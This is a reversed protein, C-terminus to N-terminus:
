LLPHWPVGNRHNRHVKWRHSRHVAYLLDSCQKGHASMAGAVGGSGAAAPQNAAASSSPARRSPRPAASLRAARVWILDYESYTTEYLFLTCTHVSTYGLGGQGLMSSRRKIGESVRAHGEASCALKGLRCAQRRVDRGHVARDRGASAM